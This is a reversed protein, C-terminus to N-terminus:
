PAPKSTTSRTITFPESDTPHMGSTTARFTYDTGSKDIHLDRFTAVGNVAAVSTTGSLVGGGPNNDIAIVVNDTASTVVAGASDLISVQIAPLTDNPGAWGPEVTFAIWRVRLPAAPAVAMPGSVQDAARCGTMVLGACLLSSLRGRM